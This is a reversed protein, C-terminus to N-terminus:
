RTGPQEGPARPRASPLASDLQRPPHPAEKATCAALLGDCPHCTADTPRRADPSGDGEQNGATRTGRTRAAGQAAGALVPVGNVFVDRV